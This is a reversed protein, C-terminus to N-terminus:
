KRTSPSLERHVIAPCNNWRISHQVLNGYPHRVLIGFSRRELIGDHSLSAASCDIASGRLPMIGIGDPHETSSEVDQGYEAMRLRRETKALDHGSYPQGLRRHKANQAAEDLSSVAFAIRLGALVAEAELQQPQRVYPAALGADVIDGCGRHAFNTVGHVLRYDQGNDRGCVWSPQRDGAFRNIIM